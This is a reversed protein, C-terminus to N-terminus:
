KMDFGEEEETFVSAAPAGYLLLLSSKLSGEDCNM